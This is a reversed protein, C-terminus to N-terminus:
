FSQILCRYTCYISEIFTHLSYRTLIKALKWYQNSSLMMSMIELQETESTSLTIFFILFFFFFEFFPLVKLTSLPFVFIAKETVIKSCELKTM